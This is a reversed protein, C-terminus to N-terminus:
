PKDNTISAHLEGLTEKGDKFTMGAVTDPLLDFWQLLFLFFAKPAIAEPAVVTEITTDKNYSGPRRNAVTELGSIFEKLTM